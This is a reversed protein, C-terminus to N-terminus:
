ATTDEQTEDEERMAMAMNDDDNLVDNRYSVKINLNFMKNIKDAAHQRPNLRTYRHAVTGSDNRAIEDTIMREKKSNDINSIGLKTLLENYIQTRLMYIDTAVFPADTKMAQIATTDLSKDGFIYPENGEYKQYLNKMTLRQNENCRILIPTKQAKINIDVTRDFEWLRKAYNVLMPFDSSRLVNNYIIVSNTSDLPVHYMTSDQSYAYYSTPRGYVDLTGADAVRLALYGIADDKFFVVKGDQLLCKEMYDVDITDPMNEWNFMTIALQAIDKLYLWYSATNTWASMNFLNNKTRAM